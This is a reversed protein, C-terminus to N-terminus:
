VLKRLKDIIEQNLPIDTERVGPTVVTELPMRYLFVLFTKLDSWYEKELKFFLMDTAAKGFVNYLIILHNLILQESIQGTKHYRNFLRKLYKFRKLDEQIDTLGVSGPSQYHKIAVVLFNDDNLEVM